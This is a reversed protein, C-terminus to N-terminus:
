DEFIVGKRRFCDKLRKIIRSKRMDVASRSIQLMSKLNGLDIDRYVHMDVIYKDDISLQEICRSLVELKEKNLLAHYAGLDQSDLDIEELGFSIIQKNRRLYDLTHNITVMRLWSALSAGNKAKFQRLRKFNDKILLSFVSQCLDDATEISDQRGKRRLTSYIYSYILSSYKDVFQEWAQKDGSTCKNIFDFDNMKLTTTM